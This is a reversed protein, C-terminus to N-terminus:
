SRRSVRSGPSTKTQSRQRDQMNSALSQAGRLKAAAELTHIKSVQLTLLARALRIEERFSEIDQTDEFTLEAEFPTM